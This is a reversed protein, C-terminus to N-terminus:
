GAQPPAADGAARSWLSLVLGVALLALLALGVYAVATPTERSREVAYAQILLKRGIQDLLLLLYVFPVLARYRVLVAVGILTLVLQGLASLAFLMLVAHAGDAGYSQLQFGDAGVAVSETNFISNLSMVLKLAIFLGLLWLAARHRDLRNDVQRPFLRNLLSGRGEPM